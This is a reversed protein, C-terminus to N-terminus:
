ACRPLGRSFARCLSSCVVCARVPMVSTPLPGLIICAPRPSAVCACTHGQTIPGFTPPCRLTPVRMVNHGKLRHRSFLALAYRLYPEAHTPEAHHTAYTPLTPPNLIVGGCPM